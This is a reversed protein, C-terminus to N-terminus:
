IPTQSRCLLMNAFQQRCISSTKIRALKEGVTQWCTTTDKVCVGIETQWCSNALMLKVHSPRKLRSRANGGETRLYDHPLFISSFVFASVLGGCPVTHAWATAPKSAHDCTSMYGAYCDNRNGKLWVPFARLCPAFLLM